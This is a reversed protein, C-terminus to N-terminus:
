QRLMVLLNVKMFMRAARMLRMFYPPMEAQLVARFGFREYFPGLGNRCILYLPPQNEALLQEIIAGAVGRQRHAPRVALSALERTGDAHPKVQGCGILEGNPAVAVIFRRWDLSAPNIRVSRILARIAPADRACAPRLLFKDM